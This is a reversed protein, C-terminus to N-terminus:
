TNYLKIRTVISIGHRFWILNEPKGFVFSAKQIHLSVEDNLNAAINLASGLCVFKSVVALKRGYVFIGPEIYLMEQVPQLMFVTNTLNITLGLAECAM